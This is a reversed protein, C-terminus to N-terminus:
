GAMLATTAGGCSAMTQELALTTKAHVFVATPKVKCDVVFRVGGAAQLVTEGAGTM